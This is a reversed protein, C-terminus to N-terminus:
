LRSTASFTPWICVSKESNSIINGRSDFQVNDINYNDNDHLVVCKRTRTDWIYAHPSSDTYSIYQNDPSIDLSTIGNSHEFQCTSQGNRQDWLKVINSCRTAVLNENNGVIIERIDDTHQLHFEKKHTTLDYIHANNEHCAFIVKEGSNDFKVCDSGKRYNRTALIDHIQEPTNINWITIMNDSATAAVQETPSFDLSKAGIVKSELVFEGTSKDIIYLMKNSYLARYKSRPSYKVRYLDESKLSFATKGNDINESQVYYFTEKDMCGDSDCSVIEEQSYTGTIESGDRSIQMNLLPQNFKIEKIKSSKNFLQVTNNRLIAIRGNDSLKCSRISAGLLGARLLTVRPLGLISDSASICIQFLLAILFIKKRSM